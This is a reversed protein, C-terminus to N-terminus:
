FVYGIEMGCVLEVFGSGDFVFDGVCVNVIEVIGDM